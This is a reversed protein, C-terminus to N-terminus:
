RVQTSRAQKLRMIQTLEKHWRWFMIGLAGLACLCVPIGFSPSQRRNRDDFSGTNSRRLTDNQSPVPMEDLYHLSVRLAKAAELLLPRADPNRILNEYAIIFPRLFSVWSGPGGSYRYIRLRCQSVGFIHITRSAMRRGYVNTTADMKITIRPNTAISRVGVSMKGFM